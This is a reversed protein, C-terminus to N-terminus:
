RKAPADSAAQRPKPGRKAPCLRRGLRSELATVFDADGLPRGITEAERLVVFSPSDGPSDLLDRFRPV